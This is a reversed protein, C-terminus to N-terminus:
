VSWARPGCSHLLTLLSHLFLQSLQFLSTVEAEMEVSHKSMLHKAAFTKEKFVKSCTACKTSQATPDTKSPVVVMNSEVWAETVSSLKSELLEVQEELEKNGKENLAETIHTKVRDDMERVFSLSSPAEYREWSAVVPEAKAEEQKMDAVHSPPLPVSPLASIAEEAGEAVQAGMEKDQFHSGLAKMEQYKASASEFDAMAELQQGEELLAACRMALRVDIDLVADGPQNRGRPRRSQEDEDKKKKIKYKPRIYIADDSDLLDGEDRCQNGGYYAYLHVGRLWSICLDLELALSATDGDYSAAFDSQAKDASLTAELMSTAASAASVTAEEAQQSKLSVEEESLTVAETLERSEGETENAMLAAKCNALKETASVLAQDALAATQSASTSEQVAQEAVEAAASAKTELDSKSQQARKAVAGLAERVSPDRLISSLPLELGRDLAAALESARQFDFAIRDQQVFLIVNSFFLMFSFLFRTVFKRPTRVYRPM